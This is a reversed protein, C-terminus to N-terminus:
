GGRSLTNTIASEWGGHGNSINIYTSHATKFITRLKDLCTATIGLLEGAYIDVAPRHMATLVAEPINTPGPMALYEIGNKIAM